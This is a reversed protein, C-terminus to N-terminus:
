PSSLIDLIADASKVYGDAQWALPTDRESIYGYLAIISAMGAQKAAIVDTYADGIYVCKKVDCQLSHAAHILPAPHPKSYPLTDGSVVCGAKKLLDWRSILPISFQSEKNTIIGWLIKQHQLYELVTSIGPFLQTGEALHEAYISLFQKKLAAYQADSPKIGFGLALMGAIGQSITCRVTALPLPSKKESILLTNLTLALDPATDLLTGDLDFLVAKLDTMM